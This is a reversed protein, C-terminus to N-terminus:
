GLDAVWEAIRGDDTIPSVLTYVDTGVTFTDGRAPNAVVSKQIHLEIHPINLDSDFGLRVIDRAIHLDAFFAGLTSSTYLGNTTINPNSFILDFATDFVDAM